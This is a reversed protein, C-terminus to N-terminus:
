WQIPHYKTWTVVMYLLLFSYLEGVANWRSCWLHASIWSVCLTCYNIKPSQNMWSLPWINVFRQRYLPNWSLGVHLRIEYKDKNLGHNQKQSFFLHLYFIMQKFIHETSSKTDLTNIVVHCIPSCQSGLKGACQSCTCQKHATIVETQVTHEAQSCRASSFFWTSYLLLSWAPWTCCCCRFYFVSFVSCVCLQM